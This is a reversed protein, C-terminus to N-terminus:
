NRVIIKQGIQLRNGRIRNLQRLKEVSTNYRKAIEWLTDGSTVVHVQAKGATAPRQSTKSNKASVKGVALSQSSLTFASYSYPTKDAEPPVLQLIKGVPAYDSRLNNWKKLDDINLGYKKAINALSEGHKVKHLTPKTKGKLPAATAVYPSEQPSVIWEYYDAFDDIRDAPVRLPYAERVSGPVIGRKLEPNLEELDELCVNLKEAIKRLPVYKNISIVDYDIAFHPQDQVLNHEEAYNMTYVIATFIPVYARTEKPLFHWIEWFNCKGGSRRIARQVVGPGCNYAALALEWDQGFFNYLSKLYKCAAITSKEPDFREDIFANQKLGYIRGTSPIFQWLGGAGARSIARPNLASEIITLYKLEDPLQYEALYKEFIPFYINKRALMRMTYDRRRVTFYHIFEQVQQNFTLPISSNLCTLRQVILNADPQPIYDYIVDEDEFHIVDPMPKFILDNDLDSIANQGEYEQQPNAIEVPHILGIFQQFLALAVEYHQTILLSDHIRKAVTDTKAVPAQSFAPITLINLLAIMWGKRPLWSPQLNNQM